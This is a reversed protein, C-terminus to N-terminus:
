AVNRVIAKLTDSVSKMINTRLNTVASWTNMAMQMAYMLVEISSAKADVEAYDPDDRLAANNTGVDLMVPLCQTPPVGACARSASRGAAGSANAARYQAFDTLFRQPNEAVAGATALSATFHHKPTLKKPLSLYYLRYSDLALFIPRLRKSDNAWTFKVRSRCAM